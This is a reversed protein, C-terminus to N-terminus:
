RRDRLGYFGDRQALDMIKIQTKARKVEFELESMFDALTKRRELPAIWAGRDGAEAVVSLDLVRVRECARISRDTNFVGSANIHASVQTLVGETVKKEIERGKPTDYFRARFKLGVEDECELFAEGIKENEAHDAYLPVVEGLCNHYCGSVMFFPDDGHEDILTGVTSCYGHFNHSM